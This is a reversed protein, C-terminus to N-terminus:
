SVGVKRFAAEIQDRGPESLRASVRGQADYVLTTGLATIGFRKALTGSKDITFPYPSDGIARRRQRLIAPPDSPDISVWAVDVRGGFKRKVEGLAEASPLCSLCSSVSFFLAGPRGAPLRVVRGEVTTLRVEGISSGRTQEPGVAGAALVAAAVAVVVM